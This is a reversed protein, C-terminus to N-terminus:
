PAARLKALEAQIKARLSDSLPRDRNNRLEGLNIDEIDVQPMAFNESELLIRVNDSVRSKITERRKTSESNNYQNVAERAAEEPQMDKGLNIRFFEDLAQKKKIKAESINTPWGVIGAASSLLTEARKYNDDQLQKGLRRIQDESFGARYAEALLEDLKSIRGSRIQQSMMLEVGVSVGTTSPKLAAKAAELTMHGGLVLQYIVERKRPATTKNDLLELRLTNAAREADDKRRDDEAKQAAVMDVNYDRVRKRVTEKEDQTLGKYIGSLNGLDGAALRQLAKIPTSAFEDKTALGVVADIKATRIASLATELPKAHGTQEILNQFPRLQSDLMRDIDVPQGTQPDITGAQAIIGEIVPKMNEAAADMGTNILTIERKVEQAAAEAFLSKGAISLSARLRVSEEPDLVGVSSAYGDIMDQLDQRTKNIDIRGGAKVVALAEGIKRQGEAQLEAGLMSGQMAEYTQQFIRGAGPVQLSPGTGGVAADIQEKTLPNELAYRKAKREAETEARRQAFNLMRDIQESMRQYGEAAVQLNATSVRPLDAYQVGMPEYRPLTAM